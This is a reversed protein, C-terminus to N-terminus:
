TSRRFDLGSPPKKRRRARCCGTWAVARRRPHRCRDRIHFVLNRTSAIAEPDPSTSL